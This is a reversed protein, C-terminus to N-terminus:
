CVGCQSTLLFSWKRPYRWRSGERYWVTIGKVTLWSINLNFAMYFPWRQKVLIQKHHTHTCIIWLISLSLIKCILTSYKFDPGTRIWFTSIDHDLYWLIFHYKEYGLLMPLNNRFPWDCPTIISILRVCENPVNCPLLFVVERGVGIRGRLRGFM